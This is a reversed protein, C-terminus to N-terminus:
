RFRRAVSPRVVVQEPQLTLGEVHVEMHWFREADKAIQGTWTGSYRVLERVNSPSKSEFVAYIRLIPRRDPGRGLAAIVGDTLEGVSRAGSVKVDAGRLDRFYRVEDAHFGEKAALRRAKAMAARFQPTHPILEESLKGAVSTFWHPSSLARDAYEVVRTWAADDLSQLLTEEPPTPTKSLRERVKRYVFRALEQVLGEISFLAGRPGDYAWEDFKRGIKILYGKFGDLAFYFVDRYHYFTGEFWETLIKLQGRGRNVAWQLTTATTDECM